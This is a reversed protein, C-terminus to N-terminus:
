ILRHRVIYADAGLSLARQQYKSATRSALVILPLHQHQENKRLAAILEYGDMHPMEIDLLMADVSQHKIVMEIAEVGDCASLVEWGNRKLMESVVRRVSPSDDVVLVCQIEKSM